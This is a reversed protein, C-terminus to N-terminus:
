ASPSSFTLTSAPQLMRETVDVGQVFIGTVHGDPNKIPHYVFDVYREVAPQGPVAEFVYKKSTATYDAMTKGVVDREGVLLKYAPNALEFRHETGRPRGPGRFRPGM